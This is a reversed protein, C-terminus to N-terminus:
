TTYHYINEILYFTGGYRDHLSKIVKYYKGKCFYDHYFEYYGTAAAIRPGPFKALPSLYLRYTVLLCIYVFPVILILGLFRVSLVNPFITGLAMTLSSYDKILSNDRRINLNWKVRKSFASDSYRTCLSMYLAGHM